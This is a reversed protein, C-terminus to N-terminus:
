SVEVNRLAGGCRIHGYGTMKRKYLRRGEYGCKTCDLRYRKSSRKPEKINTDVRTYRAIGNGGIALCKARWVHDHGHGETLAHAVEHLITKMVRAEDNIEVLKTSLEVKRIGKLFSRQYQGFTSTLRPNMVADVDTLGHDDLTRRLLKQAETTNM